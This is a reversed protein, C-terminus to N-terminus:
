SAGELIRRLRKIAASQMERVAGPKKDLVNAVQESTMEAGFRLSLVQRQAGSVQQMAEKLREVEQTREVIESPSSGGSAVPLAKELEVQVPRRGKKRLYDVVLNHAIRFIWAELPAGTPTYRDASQIARMFVEGALDEADDRSGIRAYIYRAVRGYHTEYLQAVADRISSPTDGASEGLLM